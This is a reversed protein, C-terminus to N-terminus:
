GELKQVHELRCNAGKFCGKTKPDYFKCIRKDDTPNYGMVAVMANETNLPEEYLIKMQEPTLENHSYKNAQVNDLKTINYNKSSSPQQINVNQKLLSPSKLQTDLKQQVYNFQKADDREIDNILLLNNPKYDVCGTKVPSPFEFNKPNNFFQKTQENIPDVSFSKADPNLSSVLEINNQNPLKEKIQKSSQHAPSVRFPNFPNSM